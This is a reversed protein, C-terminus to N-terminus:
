VVWAAVAGAVVPENDAIMGVAGDLEAVVSSNDELSQQSAAYNNGVVGWGILAM